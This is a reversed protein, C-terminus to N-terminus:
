QMRDVRTIALFVQPGTSSPARYCGVAQLHQVSFAAMEWAMSEDMDVTGSDSFLAFGTVSELEKLRAAKERSLAPLSSNAWAWKWTNSATSYSGINIIHAVLSTVGDAEYFTLTGADQDLHWRAFHGFGYAASMADQKRALDAVVEALLKDFEANTM